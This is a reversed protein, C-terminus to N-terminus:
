KLTFNTWTSILAHSSHNMRWQEWVCPWLFSHTNIFRSACATSVHKRGNDTHALFLLDQIIQVLTCLQRDEQPTNLRVLLKKLREELEERDIMTSKLFLKGASSNVHMDTLRHAETGWFRCFAEFPWVAAGNSCCSVPSTGSYGGLANCPM